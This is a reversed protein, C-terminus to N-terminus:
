ESPLRAYANLQRHDHDLSLMVNNRCVEARLTRWENMREYWPRISILMAYWCGHRMTNFRDSSLSRGSVNFGTLYWRPRIVIRALSWGSRSSPLLCYVFIGSSLLWGDYSAPRAAALQNLQQRKSGESDDGSV